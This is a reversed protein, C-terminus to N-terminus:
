AKAVRPALCAVIVTEPALEFEVGETHIDSIHISKGIKLNTVDIEFHTPIKEPLCKVRVKALSQQLTGGERVGIAQGKLIIPVEVTLRTGEHIGYLDFHSITDKIPDIQLDKLICKYEKEEGEIQLRVIKTETTHVIPRLPKQEVVIPIPEVEKTYFVGPILGKKRLNRAVNKGIERRKAKLIVESM